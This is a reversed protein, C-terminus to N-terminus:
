LSSYIELALKLEYNGAQLVFLARYSSCHLACLSFDLLKFSHNSHYTNIAIYIHICLFFLSFLYSCFM